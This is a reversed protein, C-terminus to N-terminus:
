GWVAAGGPAEWPRHGAAEGGVDLHLHVGCRDKGAPFAGAGNGGLGQVFSPVLPLPSPASATVPVLRAGGVRDTSCCPMWWGKRQARTLMAGCQSVPSDSTVTFCPLCGPLWASLVACAKTQVSTGRKIEPLSPNGSALLSGGWERPLSPLWRQASRLGREEWGWSVGGFLYISLSM